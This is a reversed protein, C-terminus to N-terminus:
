FYSSFCFCAQLSAQGFHCDLSPNQLLFHHSYIDSFLETFRWLSVHGFGTQVTHNLMKHLGQYDITKCSPEPIKWFQLFCYNVVFSMNQADLIKVPLTPWKSHSVAAKCSLLLPWLTFQSICFTVHVCVTASEFKESGMSWTPQVPLLTFNVCCETRASFSLSDARISASTGDSVM